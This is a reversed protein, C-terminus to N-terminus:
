ALQCHRYKDFHVPVIILDPCLQKAIFGPMASRIGFKRAEYSATSLMANGGVAIPLGKLQPNDRVEVSAYFADRAISCLTLWSVLHLTSTHVLMDVHFFTQTLDRSAELTALKADISKLLPADDQHETSKLKQLMQRVEKEVRDSKAQENKFFKSGQWAFNFVICV